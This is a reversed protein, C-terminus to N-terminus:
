IRPSNGDGYPFASSSSHVGYLSTMEVNAGVLM